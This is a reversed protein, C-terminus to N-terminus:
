RRCSSARDGKVGAGTDDAVRFFASGLVSGLALGADYDMLRGCSIFTPVFDTRLSANPSDGTGLGPGVGAGGQRAVAKIPLTCAARLLRTRDDAHPAEVACAGFNSV